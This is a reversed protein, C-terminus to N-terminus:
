GTWRALKKRLLFILIGGALFWAFTAVVVQTQESMASLPTSFIIGFMLAYLAAGTLALTMRRFLRKVHYGYPRGLKRHRLIEESLFMTFLLTIGLMGFYALLYPMSLSQQQRILIVAYAIGIYAVVATPIVSLNQIHRQEEPSLEM